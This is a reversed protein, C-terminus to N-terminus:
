IRGDGRAFGYYSSTCGDSDRSKRSFSYPFALFCVVFFRCCYTSRSFYPNNWAAETGRLLRQVLIEM